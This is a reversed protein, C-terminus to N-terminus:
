RDGCRASQVVGTAERHWCCDLVPTRQWRSDTLPPLPRHRDTLRCGRAAGRAIAGGWGRAAARRGGRDSGGPADHPVPVSGIKSGGDEIKWGGGNRMGLGAEGRSQGRAQRNADRRPFAHSGRRSSRRPRRSRRNQKSEPVSEGLRPLDGESRPSRQKGGIRAQIIAPPV